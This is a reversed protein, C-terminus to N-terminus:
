GGGVAYYGGVDKGLDCTYVWEIMDGQKLLYRSAGYNPFWGNVKYMWGSLSGCDFEYLNHIGEIYVSNYMPTFVFEMHIRKERTVRKLVDFVSENEYFTVTAPLLVTGDSPLVSLKEKNFLDMNNLIAGCRISLTCTHAKNKDVTVNEPEVPAPKGEPVPDTNYKDKGTNPDIVMGSPSSTTPASTGSNGSEGTASPTQNSQAATTDPYNPPTKRAQLYEDSLQVVAYLSFHATDFTLRGDASQAKFDTKEGESDISYVKCTEGDYGDPLPIAATVTGNPAIVANKRMLSIDYLKFKAAVTKLTDQALAYTNGSEVPVVTIMAGEPVVGPKATVNIGTAPDTIDTGPTASTALDASTLASSDSANPKPKAEPAFFFASVLVAIVCIAALGIKTAKHWWQKKVFEM